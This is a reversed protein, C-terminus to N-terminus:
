ERANLVYPLKPKLSFVDSALLSLGEEKAQALLMRDFPDHRALNPFDKLNDAHIVNFSLYKLGSSAIDDLLDNSTSLKELM